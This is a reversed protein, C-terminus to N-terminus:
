EKTLLPRQGNLQCPQLCVASLKKKEKGEEKKQVKGAGGSTGGDAGVGGHVGVANGEKEGTGDRGTKEEGATVGGSSGGDGKGKEETCHKVKGDAKRGALVDEGGDNGERSRIKEGMAAATEGGSTALVVVEKRKPGEERTNKELEAEMPTKTTMKEISVCIKGGDLEAKEMRIGTTDGRSRGSAGAAGTVATAQNVPGTVEKIVPAKQRAEEVSKEEMATKTKIKEQQDLDEKGNETTNESEELVTKKVTKMEANGSRSARM